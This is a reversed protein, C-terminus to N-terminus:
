TRADTIERPLPKPETTWRNAAPDYVYLGRREAAARYLNLAAVDNVADYQMTAYGGAYNGNGKGPQGEPKPDIWTNTKVDYIWLANATPYSGGGVYIRDRKTDHCAVADIGFPPPPGKPSAKTWTNATPDYFWPEKVHLFFVQKKSPVYQVVSEMNNGQPYDGQVLQREWKASETNYFWPCVRLRKRDTDAGPMPLRTGLKSRSYPSECPVFVFKRADSDYSMGEYGHAMQAVPLLEGDPTVTFGAKDLEVELTKVHAGPHVCIWRHANIDYAWLDDQLRGDPKTFAHVGEGYLFAARLEPAYAMKPTWSRGRAIGWKPDPAPAGLNLWSDDALTKIKDLHAGAASPLGALPGRASQDARPPEGPVAFLTTLALVVGSLGPLVNKLRITHMQM